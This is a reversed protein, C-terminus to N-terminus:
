GDRHVWVWHRGGNAKRISQHWCCGADDFGAKMGLAPLELLPLGPTIVYYRQFSRLM